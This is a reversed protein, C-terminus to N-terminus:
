REGRAKTIKSPPSVASYRSARPALPASTLEHIPQRENNDDSHDRLYPGLLSGEAENAKFRLYRVQYDHARVSQGMGNYCLMLNYNAELDEPDIALVSQFERVAEAYRRELFFTRAVNNRVVRDNPYQDLAIKFQAIAEDYHGQDRLVNGYFFHASALSPAVKLAQLLVKMAEQLNGEQLQVRGMNVWGDGRTPAAQAVKEFAAEAGQLDGQLLLGIGYDNWRQWDAAEVIVQPKPPEAEAPLVQLEAEDHSMEVIPVEPIGPRKGSAGKTDGTFVWKTDDYDPSVAPNYRVPDHIGGFAFQTFWWSFKRYNLKATLTIRNGANTPIYLRYHVTDAAGPPILHVYVVAREAWANRKNIPNGHSDILLARYFQAGPDVPGNTDNSKGAEGSWFIIRGNEDTAKLELWLDFADITGGPFFHGVGRTRVVVDVRVTDGRRVAIPVRGFPATLRSARSALGEQGKPATFESEEGVGFTTQLQPAAITSEPLLARKSAPEASEPSIGFIDVSVQNAKLFKEVADLQGADENEYPVATNAGPFRHSDIMGAYNGFDTSRVKPMHCDTCTQPKPPYYFSRAGQGSVGSSQWNDYENFGRTWRYHNVPFDLHVKHCTSCFEATQNKVFPRLFTRRHPEPNLKILFDVFDHVVPNKSTALRDLPSYELVYDGQGMTSSVKQISHCMVCGLGAQGEPTKEVDRVPRNFMGTLLLAPDHCGACWKSPRIGVTDQMYEISKRYWQNNFSSFHHASGEWQRYIDAHCTKCTESEMFAENPIKVSSEVVASSPFFPGSPGGGEQNMTAPADPPNKIQYSHQWQVNRVWWAGYSVTAFLILIAAWRLSSAFSSAALQARRSVYSGLLLAIGLICAAIHVYLIPFVNRPTGTFILAVGIAGGLALFSWGARNLLTSNRWINRSFVLLLFLFAIGAALHFVVFVYYHIAPTPWAYDYLATFFLILLLGLRLKKM